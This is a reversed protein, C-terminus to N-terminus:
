KGLPGFKGKRYRSQCDSICQRLEAGPKEFAAVCEDVCQRLLAEANGAEVWAEVQSRTWVFSAEVSSSLLLLALVIKM